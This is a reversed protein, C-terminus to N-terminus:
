RTRGSADPDDDSPADRAPDVPTGHEHEARAEAVSVTPDFGTTMTDWAVVPDDTSDAGVLRVAQYRKTAAPWHSSTVVVGIGLLAMLAGMVLAVWPWASTSHQEVLSKVSAAGDVGTIKTVASASARVPDVVASVSSLTVSAGLICELVGLIVRFVRGAITIAGFLALGALSLASLAPAAVSGAAHVVTTGGQPSTATLTFWNQTYTLLVIGALVLGLLITTSKLRRATM